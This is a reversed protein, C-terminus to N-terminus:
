EEVNVILRWKYAITEENASYKYTEGTAGEVDVWGLGDGRDVQWQFTLVEDDSFGILKSTLTIFENKKVIKGQSSSIRVERKPQVPAGSEDTQPEGTEDQMEGTEGQPEDTETDGTAEDEEPEEPEEEGEPVDPQTEAWEELKDKPLRFVPSTYIKEDASACTIVMCLLLATVATIVILKMLNKM